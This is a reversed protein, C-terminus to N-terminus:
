RMPRASPNLLSLSLQPYREKLQEALIEFFLESGLQRLADVHISMLAITKGNLDTLRPNSLGERKPNSLVGKPELIELTVQDAATKEKSM